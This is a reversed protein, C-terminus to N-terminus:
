SMLRTLLLPLGSGVANATFHILYAQLLSGTKQRWYGALWGIGFTMILVSLLMVSDLLGILCLHGLSLLLAPILVPPAFAIRARDRGWVGLETQLWGRFLVEECLSAYVWVSLVMHWFGQRAAPHLGASPENGPSLMTLVSSIVMGALTIGVALGIPILVSRRDALRFGYVRFPKRGVWRMLLLSTILFFTQSVVGGTVWPLAAQLSRFPALDPVIFMGLLYTIFVAALAILPVSRM